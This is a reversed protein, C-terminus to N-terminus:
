KPGGVQFRSNKSCLEILKRNLTKVPKGKEFKVGFRTLRYTSGELLLIEVLQKPDAEAAEQQPEAAPAAKPATKKQEKAEKLVPAPSAESVAEPSRAPSETKKASATKRRPKRAEAM